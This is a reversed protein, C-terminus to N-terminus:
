CHHRRVSSIHDFGEKCACFEASRAAPPLFRLPPARSLQPGCSSPCCRVELPLGTGPMPVELLFPVATYADEMRARRGCIAKAGHPPCFRNHTPPSAAVAGPLSADGAVGSRQSDQMSVAEAGTIAETGIATGASVQASASFPSTSDSVTPVDEASALPGLPKLSSVASTGRVADSDAAGSRVGSLRADHLGTQDSRNDSSAPEEQAARHRRDCSAALGLDRLSTATPVRSGHLKGASRSGVTGASCRLTPTM